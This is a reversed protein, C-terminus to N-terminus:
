KKFGRMFTVLAKIDADSLDESPKMLVKGDKDKLGEKIAKFAAEDKMEAQVKADTYDKIGLKQGMKTDGKGEKGHCKACGKDYNEKADGAFASCLAVTIVFTLLTKKM